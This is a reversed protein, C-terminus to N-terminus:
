KKVLESSNFPTQEWKKWSKNYWECLFCNRTIKEVIRMVPYSYPKFDNVKKQTVVDGIQFAQNNM